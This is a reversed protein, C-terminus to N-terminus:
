CNCTDIDFYFGIPKGDVPGNWGMPSQIQLNLRNANEEHCLTLRTVCCGNDCLDIHGWGTENGEDFNRHFEADGEHFYYIDGFVLPCLITKIAYLAQRFLRQFAEADPHQHFIFSNIIRGVDGRPLISRLEMLASQNNTEKVIKSMKTTHKILMFQKVLSSTQIALISKVNLNTTIKHSLGSINCVRHIAAHKEEDKGDFDIFLFRGCIDTM